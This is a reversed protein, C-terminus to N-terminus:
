PGFLGQHRIFTELKSDTYMKEYLAEACRATEKAKSSAIDGSVRFSINRLDAYTIVTVFIKEGKDFRLDVSFNRDIRANGTPKSYSVIRLGCEKILGNSFDMALESDVMRPEPVTAVYNYEPLPPFCGVLFISIFVVILFKM